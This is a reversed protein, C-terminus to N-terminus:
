SKTYTGTQGMFIITIINGNVTGNFQAFLTNLTDNVSSGLQDRIQDKTYWSAGLGGGVTSGWVHTPTFTLSNGNETYTGKMVNTGNNTVVFNGNTLNVIEGSNNSWNGNFAYSGTGPNNGGDISYAIKGNDGVAVFTGNGYAVSEIDEFLSFTSNAAVTWKVGDSSAAIKGGEGVAVFKNGSWVIDKVYLYQVTSFINDASTAWTVGDSSAMIKGERGIGLVFKGGGYAISTIAEKGLLLGNSANIITWSTGDSSNAIIGSNNGAVFKNNGWAITPKLYNNDSTGTAPTWTVGTSSYAMKGGSSSAVFKGGGYVIVCIVNEDNFATTTVTTWTVGGDSSYAIKGKQGVAVFKSDGYAIARIDEYYGFKSDTVKTWTIGDPSYAMKGYRGGAVFKGNGYAIALITNYDEGFFPSNTVATWTMAGGGPVIGVGPVVSVGNDDSDDDCAAMSFGIVAVITLISLMKVITAQLKVTAFSWMNAKTNKM